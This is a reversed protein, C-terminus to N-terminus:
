RVRARARSALQELLTMQAVGDEAPDVLRGLTRCQAFCDVMAAYQNVPEFELVQARDGDSGSDSAAGITRLRALPKTASPPLFADPVVIVGATGVLEYECRYPQEFSCDIIALLGDRFELLVTTDVDVGTEGIHALARCTSPEEGAFFRAANVGYCGIDWLCGGGHSPELRWDSPAISFSFSSRILRLEGILGDAVLKRIGLTRPHHRWMFGEMLMVGRKRCHEAM